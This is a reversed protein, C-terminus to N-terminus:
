ASQAVGDATEAAKRKEELMGQEILFARLHEVTRKHREIWRLLGQWSVKRKAKKTYCYLAHVFELNKQIRDLRMSSRFIRIELTKDTVNLAAYRTDFPSRKSEIRDKNAGVDLLSLSAWQDLQAKKRQSVTLIRRYNEQSYVLSFLRFLQDGEWADLSTHVHMGCRGNDHATCGCDRALRLMEREYTPWFAQWSKFTRPQSVVEIGHELSGDRKLCWDHETEDEIAHAVSEVDRYGKCEIELEIGYYM